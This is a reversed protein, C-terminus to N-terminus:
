RREILQRVSLQRLFAELLHDLFEEQETFRPFGRQLDCVEGLTFTDVM